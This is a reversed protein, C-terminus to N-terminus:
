VRLSTEFVRWSIVNHKSFFPSNLGGTESLLLNFLHDYVRGQTEKSIQKKALPQTSSACHPDSGEKRKGICAPEAKSIHHARVAKEFLLLCVGSYIHASAHTHVQM